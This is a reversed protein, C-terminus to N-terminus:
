PLIIKVVRRAAAKMEARTLTVRTLTTVATLTAKTVATVTRRTMRQM